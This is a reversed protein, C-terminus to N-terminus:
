QGQLGNEPVRRRARQPRYSYEYVAPNYEYVAPNPNYSYSYVAPNPNYSYEYVNVRTGFRALKWLKVKRRM